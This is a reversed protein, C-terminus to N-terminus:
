DCVNIQWKTKPFNEKNVHGISNNILPSYVKMIIEFWLERCEKQINIMCYSCEELHKKVIDANSM